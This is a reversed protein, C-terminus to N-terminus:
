CEIRGAERGSGPQWAPGYFITRRQELVIRECSGDANIQVISNAWEFHRGRFRAFAIREGSPDWSAFLEYGPVTRTLRRQAGTETDLVFLDNNKRKGVKRFLAIESGDPSYIPQLGDPLLRTVQGTALNLAVPEADGGRREDSRTALLTSGDPSFSSATYFLGRRSPTLQRQKWTTLDITWIAAERGYERTFAITQGDPAFVPWEAGAANIRRAGGNAKALLFDGLGTVAIEAGDPRWSMPGWGFLSLPGREQGGALRVPDRGRPDVTILRGREPTWTVKVVALRPGAPAAASAVGVTLLLALVTAGLALQFRGRMGPM